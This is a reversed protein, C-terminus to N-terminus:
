VEYRLFQKQLRWEWFLYYKKEVLSNLISHLVSFKTRCVEPSVAM